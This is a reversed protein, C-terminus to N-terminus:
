VQTKLHALDLELRMLCKDIAYKFYLLRSYINPQVYSIIRIVNEFSDLMKAGDIPEMRNEDNLLSFYAVMKDIIKEPKLHRVPFNDADMIFVKAYLSEFIEITYPLRTMFMDISIQSIILKVTSHSLRNIFLVCDDYRHLHFLQNLQNSAADADMNRISM